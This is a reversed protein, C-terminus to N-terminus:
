VIQVGTACPSCLWSRQPGRVRYRTFDCRQAAFTPFRFARHARVVAVYAKVSLKILM